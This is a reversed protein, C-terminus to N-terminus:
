HIQADLEAKTERRIILTPEDMIRGRIDLAECISDKKRLPKIRLEIVSL